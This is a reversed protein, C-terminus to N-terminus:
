ARLLQRRTVRERHPAAPAHRLRNFVPVYLEREVVADGLAVGFGFEEFTQLLRHPQPHYRLHRKASEQRAAHIRAGNDRRHGTEGALRHVCTRNRKGIRREVLGRVRLHNRLTVPRAVEHLANLAVVEVQDVIKRVQVVLRIGVARRNRGVADTLESALM